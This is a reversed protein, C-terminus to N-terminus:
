ANEEEKVTFNEDNSYAMGLTFVFNVEDIGVRCNGCLMFYHGILRILEQAWNGFAGYQQLKNRLQPM